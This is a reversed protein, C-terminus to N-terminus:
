AVLTRLCNFAASGWVERQGSLLFGHTCHRCARIEALLDLMPIEKNPGPM